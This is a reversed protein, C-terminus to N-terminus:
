FGLLLRCRHTLLFLHITEFDLILPWLTQYQRVLSRCLTTFIGKEPGIPQNKIQCSWSELTYQGRTSYKGTYKWEPNKQEETM